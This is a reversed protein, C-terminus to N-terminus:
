PTNVISAPKNEQNLNLRQEYLRNMKRDDYGMRYLFKMWQNMMFQKYIGRELFRIASTTAVADLLVPQCVLGLQNSLETDEFIAKDPITQNDLYAKRVVMCHDLYVLGKKKVRVQNSYWSIFRLFFHPHDFQHTFAAWHLTQFNKKISELGASSILSRPHQLLLMACSAKQIGLNLRAARTSQPLSYVNLKKQKLYELTGDTSGGDVCLVDFFADGKFQKLIKPLYSSKMENFVSIVVTIM